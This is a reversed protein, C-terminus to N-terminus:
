VKRIGKRFYKDADEQNKEFKDWYTHFGKKSIQLFAYIFAIAKATPVVKPYAKNFEQLAEKARSSFDKVEGCLSKIKDIVKKTPILDSDNLLDSEIFKKSRKKKSCTYNEALGVAAKLKKFRSKVKSMMSPKVTNKLAEVGKPGKEKVFKAAKMLGWGTLAAVAAVAAASGPNDKIIAAKYKDKEFTDNAFDKLSDGLIGARNKLVQGMGVKTKGKKGSMMQNFYEDSDMDTARYDNNSQDDDFMFGKDNFNDRGWAKINNGDFESPEWTPGKSSRPSPQGLIPDKAKPTKIESLQNLLSDYMFDELITKQMKKSLNPYSAEVLSQLNNLLKVTKKKM